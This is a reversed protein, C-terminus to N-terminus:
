GPVVSGAVSIQQQLPGSPDALWRKRLLEFKFAVFSAGITQLIKKWPIRDPLALLKKFSSMM